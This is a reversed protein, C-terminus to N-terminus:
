AKTKVLYTKSQRTSIDILMGDACLKELDKRATYDTAGTYLRYLSITVPLQNLPKCLAESDKSLHVLFANWRNNTSVSGLLEANKLRHIKQRGVTRRLEKAANFRIGKIRVDQTRVEDLEKAEPKDIGLRLSFTGLRDLTVTNGEALHKAILDIADDVVSPAISGYRERLKEALRETTFSQSDVQQPYVNGTMRSKLFKINIM